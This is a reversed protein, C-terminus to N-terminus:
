AAVSSVTALAIVAEATTPPAIGSIVMPSQMSISSHEM